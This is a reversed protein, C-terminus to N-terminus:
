YILHVMLSNTDVKISMLKILCEARRWVSIPHLGTGMSRGDELLFRAHDCRVEAVLDACWGRTGSRQSQHVSKQLLLRSQHRVDVDEAPGRQKCEETGGGDPKEALRRLMGGRGRARVSKDCQLRSRESIGCRLVHILRAEAPATRDMVPCPRQPKRSKGWRSPPSPSDCHCDGFGARM